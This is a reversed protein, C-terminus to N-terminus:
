LRPVRGFTARHERCEFVHSQFRSRTDFIDRDIPHEDARTSIATEFIQAGCRFDDVSVLHMGVYSNKDNGARLCYLLCGLAFSEVTDKLFGSCLPALRAARHAQTHIGVYERRFLTASRGAISVEFAALPTVSAGM